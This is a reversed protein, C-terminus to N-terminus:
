LGSAYLHKLDTLSILRDEFVLLSNLLITYAIGMGVGDLDM